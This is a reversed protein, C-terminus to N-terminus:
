AESSRTSRLEINHNRSGTFHQLLSGFNEEALIRLDVQLGNDAIITSKTPGRNLIQRAIPLSVFADMVADADDATAVVDIDGITATWRRLSGGPLLHHVVVRPRLLEIIEEALPLATGLRTRQDQKSVRKLSRLVNEASKEGFGPLSALRGDKAAARLAELSDVGLEQYVRRALSPGVGPVSMLSRVGVPYEARLEELYAIKGTSLLEEVRRQVSEGVGKVQKLRGEAVLVHVDETLGGLAKSANEYARIRFTTENKLELLEAIERLAAEVDANNM